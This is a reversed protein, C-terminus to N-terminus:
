HNPNNYRDQIRRKKFEQASDMNVPYDGTLCAHCLDEKGLAEKLDNMDIYIVKEVGIEKAIEGETKEFAVLKERDPFDVGFFCPHTIPPCTSALYIEKAGCERLSQVIRRSTTGRVISDDVLLINKGEIEHAVPSLKMLVANKREEDSKLIFSRHVYRNKILIERYTMKQDEALSIASLRSTEPIPAVVDPAISGQEVLKQVKRGLVKGLDLRASYVSKQDLISEASSFYVWEFMCTKQNEQKLSKRHLGQADIYIFEGPKVDDLYEYGLAALANTESSLIYSYKLSLQSKEKEESTLERRGIVLPRIGQPDRVAFLGNDALSGVVAYGGVIKDVVKKMANALIDLDCQDFHTQSLYSAFLNLIVEVDNNTLPHRKHQDKLEKVMAHYNVLNGNHVLGIGIPFNLLHPQIDNKEGSGVTSYRTHGVAMEGGLSKIADKSFVESVLGKDKVLRFKGHKFSYSLIGAADQGRHQLTFLGKYTEYAAHASGFVGIVGCM